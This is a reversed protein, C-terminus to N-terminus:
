CVLAQDPPLFPIYAFDAKKIHNILWGQLFQEIESATVSSKDLAYRATFENLNTILKHHYGKHNEYDPYKHEKMLAEERSFHSVTYEKLTVLITGFLEEGRGESMADYLQNILGILIVHDADLQLVGVSLKGSWNILSM